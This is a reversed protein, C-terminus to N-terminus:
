EERFEEEEVDDDDDDDGGGNWDSISSLPLSYIAKRWSQIVSLSLLLSKGQNIGIDYYRAFTKFSYM